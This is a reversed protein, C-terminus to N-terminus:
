SMPFHEGIGVSNMSNFVEYLLISFCVFRSGDPNRKMSPGSRSSTTVAELYLEDSRPQQAGSSCCCCEFPFLLKFKSALVPFSM